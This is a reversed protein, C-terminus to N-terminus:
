SRGDARHWRGDDLREVSSRTPRRESEGLTRGPWTSVADSVLLSGRAASTSGLGGPWSACYEGSRPDLSDEHGASSLPTTNAAALCACARRATRGQRNPARATAPTAPPAVSLSRPVLHPRRGRRRVQADCARRGVRTRTRHSGRSPCRRRRRTRPTHSIRLAVPRRFGSRRSVQLATLAGSDADGGEIAGAVPRTARERRRPRATGRDCGGDEGEPNTCRTVVRVGDNETPVRRRVVDTDDPIGHVATDRRDDRCRLRDRRETPVSIRITSPTCRDVGDVRGPVARRETPRRTSGATGRSVAGM